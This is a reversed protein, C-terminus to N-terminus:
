MARRVDQGLPLLRGSRASNPLQIRPPSGLIREVPGGRGDPLKLVTRDQRRKAQDRRGFPELEGNLRQGRDGLPMWLDDIQDGALGMRLHDLVLTLTVPQPELSQDAVQIQSIM